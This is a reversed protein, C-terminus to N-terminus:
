SKQVTRAIGYVIVEIWFVTISTVVAEALFLSLSRPGDPIGVGLFARLLAGGLAVVLAIGLVARSQDTSGAEACADIEGANRLWRMWWLVFILIGVISSAYQLIKYVATRGLAPLQVAQRLLPLHETPWYHHHTFSDWLIHTGAGILLSLCLLAVQMASRASPRRPGLLVKVRVRRPLAAWLPQKAFAHFLYLVLLGLPLDLVFVGPLTHGFGGRPALRLFYEFDPSLCGAVLASTNLRTRRFPLAAAAHAPTFPM